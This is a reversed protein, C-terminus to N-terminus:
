QQRWLTRGALRSASTLQSQLKVPLSALFDFVKRSPKECTVMKWSSTLGPTPGWVVEVGSPPSPPSPSPGLSPPASSTTSSTLKGGSRWSSGSRPNGSMLHHTSRSNRSRAEPGGALIDEACPAPVLPVLLFMFVGVKSHTSCHLLM